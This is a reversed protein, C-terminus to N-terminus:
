GVLCASLCPASAPPREDAYLAGDEGKKAAGGSASMKGDSENFERLPRNDARVVVTRRCSRSAAPRPALAAPRCLPATAALRTAVMPATRPTLFPLKHPPNDIQFQPLAFHPLTSQLGSTQWQASRMCVM